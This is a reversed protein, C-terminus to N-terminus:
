YPESLRWQILALSLGVAIVGLPVWIDSTSGMNVVLYGGTVGATILASVKLLLSIVRQTSSLGKSQVSAQPPPSAESRAETATPAPAPAAPSPKPSGEYAWISDSPEDPLTKAPEAINLQNSFAPAAPPTEPPTPYIPQPTPPSSAPTSAEHAADSAPPPPPTEVSEVVRPPEDVQTAESKAKLVHGKLSELFLKLEDKQFAAPAITMLVGQESMVDITGTQKNVSIRKIISLRSSQSTNDDLYFLERSSLALLGGPGELRAIIPSQTLQSLRADYKGMNLLRCCACAPECEDM